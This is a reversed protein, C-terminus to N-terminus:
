KRGTTIKLGTFEAIVPEGYRKGNVKDHRPFTPADIAVRLMYKMDAPVHVNAGYHYMTPHWLFPLHFVGVQKGHEALLTVAVTLSPVFRGDAADAVAVELHANDGEPPETLVLQGGLLQYLPEAHEVAVGIRYNGVEQEAGSTAVHAIFYRVMRQYADGAEQALQLGVRTAEPTMQRPPTQAPTQHTTQATM